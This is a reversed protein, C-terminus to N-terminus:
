IEIVFAYIYKKCKIYSAVIRHAGDLLIYKDNKVDKYIWIPQINKNNDIQKEYFKISKIDNIGRPKDHLPYALIASKQLRHKSFNDISNFKSMPFKILKSKYIHAKSSEDFTKFIKITISTEISDRLISISDM